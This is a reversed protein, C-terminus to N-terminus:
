ETCVRSNQSSCAHSTRGSQDDSIRAIRIGISAYVTHAHTMYEQSVRGGIRLLASGSPFCAPRPSRIRSAPLGCGGSGHVVTSVRTGNESEAACFYSPAPRCPAAGHEDCWEAGSLSVSPRRAGRDGTRCGRRRHAGQAAQRGCLGRSRDGRGARRLAALSLLRGASTSRGERGGPWCVGRRVPPKTAAPPAAVLPRRRGAGGDHRRAQVQRQLLPQGAEGEHSLRQHGARRVLCVVAALGRRRPHRWSHAGGRRGCGAFTHAEARTAAAHRSGSLAACTRVSAAAAAAM